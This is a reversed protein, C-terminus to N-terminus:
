KKQSIASRTKECKLKEHLFQQSSARALIVFTTPCKEVFGFFYPKCKETKRRNEVCNVLILFIVESNSNGFQLFARPFFGKRAIDGKPAAAPAPQAFELSARRLKAPSPRSSPSPTV